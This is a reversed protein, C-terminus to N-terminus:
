GMNENDDEHDHPIYKCDNNKEKKNQDGSILIDYQDFNKVINEHNEM